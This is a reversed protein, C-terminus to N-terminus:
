GLDATTWLICVDFKISEAIEVNILSKFDIRITNMIRHVYTHLVFACTIESSSESSGAKSYMFCGAVGKEVIQIFDKKRLGSKEALCICEMFASYSIVKLTSTCLKMKLGNGVKGQM